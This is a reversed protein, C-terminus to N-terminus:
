ARRQRKAPVLRNLTLNACARVPWATRGRPSAMSLRNPIDLRYAIQCELTAPDLTIKDVCSKLLATPDAIETLLKRIYEPTVDALVAREKAEDEIQRVRGNTENRERELVDIKRQYPRPDEADLAMTMARDIRTNIAIAERRLAKLDDVPSAARRAEAALASCFRDSSMSDTMQNLIATDLEARHVLCNRGPQRFRYYKGESATWPKGDPSMLLGTLLYASAGARGRSTAMAHKSTERERIIHEAMDNSIVGAHTNEEIVWEDRPRYKRGSGNPAHRNWVTHGAYTLANWELSILTTSPWKIGLERACATRPRDQARAELYRGVEGLDLGAVLRSKMVPRGDRITDTEVHELKYGKPARGGARWGRRVNERMGALGHERSKLSHIEDMATLVSHMILTSVPDMDPVEAFVLAVKARECERRFVFAFWQRRSLRSTNLAIITNWTRGHQQMDLMLQQLGPRDESKASEVVDAFEAVVELGRESALQELRRRQVDISVDSRDKSSRLYLVAKM